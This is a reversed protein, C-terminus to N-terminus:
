RDRAIGVVFNDIGFGESLASDVTLDLFRVTTIPDDLPSAVGLFGDDQLIPMTEVIGAKTTVEIGLRTGNPQSAAGAAGSLDFGVAHARGEFDIAITLFQEGSAGANQIRAMLYKGAIKPSDIGGRGFYAPLAVIMNLDRLPEATLTETESITVEGGFLTAPSPRFHTGVRLSDFGDSRLDLESIVRDFSARDTHFEVQDPASGKAGPIVLLGAAILGLVASALVIIRLPTLSIVM